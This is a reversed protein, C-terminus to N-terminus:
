KKANQFLTATEDAQKCMRCLSSSIHKKIKVRRYNTRLAKKQAVTLLRETEREIDREEVVAM